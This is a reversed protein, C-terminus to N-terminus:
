ARSGTIGDKGPKGDCMQRSEALPTPWRHEEEALQPSRLSPAALQVECYSPPVLEAKFAVTLLTAAEELPPLKAEGMGGDLRESLQLQGREM